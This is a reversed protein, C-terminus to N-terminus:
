EDVPPNPEGLLRRAERVAGIALREVGFGLAGAIGIPVSGVALTVWPLMCGVDHVAQEATKLPGGDGQFPHAESGDPKVVETTM